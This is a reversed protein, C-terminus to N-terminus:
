RGRWYFPRRKQHGVALIRIRDDDITYYVCYQFRRVVRWRVDGDVPQGVLPAESIARVTRELEHLFAGGLGPRAGAYFAAAENLETEAYEHFVVPLTV